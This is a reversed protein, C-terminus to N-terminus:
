CHSGCSPTMFLDSRYRAYSSSVVLEHALLSQISGKGHFCLLFHETHWSCPVRLLDDVNCSLSVLEHSILWFLM